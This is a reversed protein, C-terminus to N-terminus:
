EVEDGRDAAIVRAAPDPPPEPPACAAPPGPSSLFSVFALEPRRAHESIVFRIDELQWGKGVWENVVSELAEDTVPSVEVFKYVPQM